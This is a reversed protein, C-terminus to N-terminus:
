DPAITGLLTVAELAARVDDVETVAYQRYVAETRHGTIKMAVSRPIGGHELRRVVSRRYDHLRYGELGAKDQAEKFANLATKYGLRRGNERAFVYVPHRGKMTLLMEHVKPLAEFCVLGVKKTTSDEGVTLYGTTWDVDSWRTNLAGGGSRAGVRAGTWFLFEILHSVPDDLHGVIARHDGDTIYVDRTVKNQLPPFVPAREIVGFQEQLSFASRLIRLENKATAEAAGEVETRHHLYSLLDRAGIALAKGDFFAQLHKRATKVRDLSKRGKMEYMEELEDLMTSVALKRPTAKVQGRDLDVLKRRLIRQAEKEDRTGTSFRLRRGDHDYLSIWFTKGRRYLSGQDSAM